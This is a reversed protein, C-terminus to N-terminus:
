YNYVRMERIRRDVWELIHIGRLKQEGFDLGFEIVSREQGVTITHSTFKTAPNKQYLSRIYDLADAKGELRRMVHSELVVNEMLLASLGAFNRENVFQVYFASLRELLEPGLPVPQSGGVWGAGYHLTTKFFNLDEPVGLGFMGDYERGTAAVVIKRGEAILQNYTPAVYFEGNVRLNKAIMTDAARTYDSGHRFNYIGVTAENSVVRKEVVEKVLGDPNMRCYSWKPHDSWFTMILGDAGQTDMEDLYEDIDLEVFQDANAIM